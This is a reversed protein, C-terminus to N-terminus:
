GNDKEKGEERVWLHELPEPFVRGTSNVLWRKSIDYVRHPGYLCPKSYAKGEIYVYQGVKVDAWLIPAANERSFIAM